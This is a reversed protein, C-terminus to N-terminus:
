VRGPRTPSARVTGIGSYIALVCLLQSGTLIIILAELTRLNAETRGKSIEKCAFGMALLTLSWSTFSTTAAALLNSMNWEIINSIGAVSSAIGVLGAILSFVVFFGTAM